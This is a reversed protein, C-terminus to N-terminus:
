NRLGLCLIEYQIHNYKKYAEILQGNWYTYLEKRSETNTNKLLKLSNKTNVATYYTHAKHNEILRLGKYFLGFIKDRELFAILKKTNYLTNDMTQLYNKFAAGTHNPKLEKKLKEWRKQVEVENEISIIKHDPDLTLFLIDFLYATKRILATIQPDDFSYKKTLLQFKTTKRKFTLQRISVERSYCKQLKDNNITVSFRYLASILQEKQPNETKTIPEIDYLNDM